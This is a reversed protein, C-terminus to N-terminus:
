ITRLLYFYKHKDNRVLITCTMLISIGRAKQVQIGVITDLQENKKNMLNYHNETNEEGYRWGNSKVHMM